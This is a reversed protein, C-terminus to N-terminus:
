IGPLSCHITIKYSYKITVAMVATFEVLGHINGSKQAYVIEAPRSSSSSDNNRVGRESFM